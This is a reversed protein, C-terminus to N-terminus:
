SPTVAPADEGAPRPTVSVSLDNDVTYYARVLLDGVPTAPYVFVSKRDAVDDLLRALRILPAERAPRVFVDWVGAGDATLERHAVTFSFSRHDDAARVEATRTPGGGRRRLVATAGPGVEAGHLRAAFTTASETVGLDAAEAHGPRLWARVALRGDKTVYPVRVALPVERDRLRGDVLARLDRAAPYVRERGADPGRLVYVDWRGEALVPDLGLVARAGGDDGPETDLVHRVREPEGKRPRLRVLLRGAGPRIDFTIRGDADVSCGVRTRAGDRGSM